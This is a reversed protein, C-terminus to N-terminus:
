PSTDFLHDVKLGAGTRTRALVLMRTLGSSATSLTVACKAVLPHLRIQNEATTSIQQRRQATSLQKIQQALGVGFLPAHSFGGRASICVRLIWKRLSALGSDLALDGTEDPLYSGTVLVSEANFGDLASATFPNALDRTPMASEQEAPIRERQVGYFLASTFGALPTGDATYLNNCSVRYQSAFPSFPRDVTVDLMTGFSEEVAAVTVQVATVQRSPLGDAGSTGAVATVAYRARNSADHPDLIGTYNPALSFTLRVANERVAIAGLLQLAGGSGAPGGGWPTGGWPGGGWGFGSM